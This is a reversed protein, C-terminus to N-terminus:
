SHEGAPHLFTARAKEPLASALQMMLKNYRSMKEKIDGFRSDRTDICQLHRNKFFYEIMPRENTWIKTLNCIEIKQIEKAETKKKKKIKRCLIIPVKYIKKM